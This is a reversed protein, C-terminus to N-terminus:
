YKFIEEKNKRSKKLTTHYNLATIKEPSINQRNFYCFIHYKKFFILYDNM